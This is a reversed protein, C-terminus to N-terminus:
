MQSPAPFIEPTGAEINQKVIQRAGVKFAFDFLDIFGAITVRAILPGVAFLENQRQHHSRFTKRKGVFDKIIGKPISPCLSRDSM